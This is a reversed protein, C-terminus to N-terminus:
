KLNLSKLVKKGTKTGITEAYKLEDELSEYYQFTLEKLYEEHNQLLSEADIVKLLNNITIDVNLELMDLEDLQKSILRAM